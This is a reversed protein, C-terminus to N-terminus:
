HEHKVEWWVPTGEFGACSELKLTYSIREIGSPITSADLRPFGQTIEYCRLAIKMFRDDDYEDCTLYGAMFLLDEFRERSEETSNQLSARINSILDNLTFSDFHNEPAGTITYVVLFGQSLQPSLQEVSAIKVSPRSGGAQCKVEIASDHVVFDQPADEPGRWFSIAENWGFSVALKESLFLLEGILGKIAEDSLVGRRERKLLEQWRSLRRLFILVGHKEDDILVTARILDSALSHFLEWNETNNLILVIKTRSATYAVAISIGSLKPLSKRDPIVGPATEYIFLYRGLSDRGWFLHLPHSESVLRVNFDTEPSEISQWPNNM